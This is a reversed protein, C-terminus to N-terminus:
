FSSKCVKCHNNLYIKNEKEIATENLSGCNECIYKHEISEKFTYGQDKLINLIKADLVKTVTEVIYDNGDKTFILKNYYMDEFHSQSSNNINEM